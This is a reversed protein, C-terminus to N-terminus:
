LPDIGFRIGYPNRANAAQGTTRASIAAQLTWFRLSHTALDPRSHGQMPAEAVFVCADYTALEACDAADESTEAIYSWIDLFDARAAPVLAYTSM